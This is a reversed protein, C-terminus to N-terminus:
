HMWLTPCVGEEMSNWLMKMVWFSVWDGNLWRDGDARGWGRAVGSNGKARHVQRNGVNWVFPTTCHSVKQTQSRERVMINKLGMWTKSCTLVRNRRIELFQKITNSYWIKDIWEDTSSRKPQKWKQATTFIWICTKTYVSTKIEEPLSIASNYTSHMNIKILYQWVAKWYPWALKCEQWCNILIGSAVCEKQFKTKKNKKIKVM